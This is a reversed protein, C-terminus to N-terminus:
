VQLHYHNLHRQNTLQKLREVCERIQEDDDGLIEGVGAGSIQKYTRM